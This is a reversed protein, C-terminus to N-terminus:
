GIKEATAGPPNLPTLVLLGWAHAGHLNLLLTIIIPGHNLIM